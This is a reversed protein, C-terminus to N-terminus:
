LGADALSIYGPDILVSKLNSAAAVVIPRTVYPTQRGEIDISSVYQLKDITKNANLDLALISLKEAFYDRDEFGTIWQKGDVINQMNSVYAGFGTVLPWTDKSPVMDKSHADQTDAQPAKAPEPAQERDLDKRGTINNVIGLLDINPNIDAASGTYGLSTLESVAASAVQDNMAILGDIAVPKNSGNTSKLRARIAQKITDDKSADIAVSRWDNSSTEVNLLGSSSRLKGSVFYPQLEDWMGQFAQKAFLAEADSQEDAHSADKSIPLLVEIYKPNDKTTKDLALKNILQRAQMAGINQANTFQVYADAKVNPVQDRLLVVHMGARKALKLSDAIRNWAAHESDEVHKPTDQTVLDGYARLAPDRDTAPAVVLTMPKPSGTNDDEHQDALDGVQRVVYDQIAHSQDDLSKSKVSSIQSSQFGQKELSKKVAPVFQNWRNLPISTSLTLDDSPTFLAVTGTDTSSSSASSSASGGQSGCAAAGVLLGLTLLSALTRSGYKFLPNTM